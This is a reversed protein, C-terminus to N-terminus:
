WPCNFFIFYSVSSPAIRHPAVLNVRVPVTRASRSPNTVTMKFFALPGSAPRLVISRKLILQDIRMVEATIARWPKKVSGCQVHRSYDLDISFDLRQRVITCLMVVEPKSSGDQFSVTILQTLWLRDSDVWFIGRVRPFKGPSFLKRKSGGRLIEDPILQLLKMCSSGKSFVRWLTEVTANVHDFIVSSPRPATTKSRKAWLLHHHKPYTVLADTPTKTHIRVTRWQANELM